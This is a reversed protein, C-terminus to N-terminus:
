EAAEAVSSDPLATKDPKIEFSEGGETIEIGPVKAVLDPRSLAFVRNVEFTARLMDSLEVDNSRRIFDILDDEKGSFTVKSPQNRWSVKGVGFDVTKKKGSNTLDSRNAECYAQVAGAIADAKLRLPAARAFFTEKVEAIFKNMEIEIEALQRDIAAFEAVAKGAEDRSQPVPCAVSKTKLAM